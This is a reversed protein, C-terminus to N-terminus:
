EDNVEKEKKRNYDTKDKHKGAGSRNWAELAEIGRQKPIKKKIKKM